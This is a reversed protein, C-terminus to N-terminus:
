FYLIEIFIYFVTDFQAVVDHYKLVENQSEITFLWENVSEM